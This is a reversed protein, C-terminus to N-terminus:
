WNTAYNSGRPKAQLVRKSRFVPATQPAPATNAETPIEPPTEDPRAAMAAPLDATVEAVEAPKAPLKLKEALRRFSPQMIKLAALAYVRCDLGENRAKDPKTWERIPQGKVYHTVLKEATVQKYWDGDREIPFHCYGPGPVPVAFRRMVVLKAEDTGVLFLDIKRANKGSQKRQPKEVIPRGWGPVGKIGFLKRGTKGKLYEYACQTYGNTGGTDLCAASIPLIRGSEHLYGSALLDDLDDWVDGALPDGWLVRYDVSWSQEGEGWAVVEVELRDPQMDIGATLYLGAAPVNAAYEEARAQLGTPDAKDGAEEYTESLSVNAFTQLDDTKLKDLYDRVIDGLKRM